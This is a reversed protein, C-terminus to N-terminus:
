DIENPHSSGDDDEEDEEDNEDEEEENEEDEDESEEEEDESKKTEIKPLTNRYEDLAKLKFRGLLKTRADLSKFVNTRKKATNETNLIYNIREQRSMYNFNLPQIDKLKESIRSYRSNQIPPLIIKNRIKKLRLLPVGDQYDDYYFGSSYGIKLFSSPWNISYPNLNDGRLTKDDDIRPYLTLRNDFKEEREKDLFDLERKFLNLKRSDPNFFNQTNQMFKNKTGRFLSRMGSEGRQQYTNVTNKRKLFDNGETLQYKRPGRILNNFTRQSPKKKNSRMNISTKSFKNYKLTKGGFKKNYSSVNPTKSRKKLNIIKYNKKFPKQASHTTRNLYRQNKNKNKNTDTIKNKLLTNKGGRIFASRNTKTMFKKNNKKTTVSQSRKQKSIQRKQKSIDTRNLLNKKKLFNNRNIQGKKQGKGVEVSKNMRNKDKNNKGKPAGKKQGKKKTGKEDGSEGEENEEDEGEENEEEEEENGEEDKGGIKKKKKM